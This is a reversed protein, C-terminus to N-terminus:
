NPGCYFCWSCLASVTYCSLNYRILFAFSPVIKDASTNNKQNKLTDV